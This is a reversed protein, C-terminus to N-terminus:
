PAPPASRPRRRGWPRRRRRVAGGRAGAEPDARRARPTIAATFTDGAGCARSQAAPAHRPASSSARTPDAPLRVAGDVDLTLSWTRGASPAPWSPAVPSSGNSGAPEPRNPSQRAAGGGGGREAHRPGPARRGAPRRAPMSSWCRFGRACRRLATHVQADVAGLGYDAVLVADAPRGPRSGPGGGARGRHPAPATAHPGRRLPRPAPRGVGAPTEGRDPAGARHRLAHHVRGRGGAPRAPRGRRRRRRVRGRARHTRGARLSQSRHQGCWGTGDPDAALEVVPVPGDRGLRRAPGSLWGDLLADGVVVVRPARETIRGALAAPVPAAAMDIGQDSLPEIPNSSVM